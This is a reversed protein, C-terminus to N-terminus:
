GLARQPRDARVLHATGIGTRGRTSAAAAGSRRRSRAHDIGPCRLDGHARSGGPVGLAALGERLADMFATPGCLYYVGDIPVGAAELAEPTIRGVADYDADARDTPDPRSYWIRRHVHALDDLLSRTEEAFAHESRNRAGHFWWIDRTSRRDHLAHLMALLPTVGVGASVLVVPQEGDDLIFM